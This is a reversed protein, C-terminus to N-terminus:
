SRTSAIGGHAHAHARTCLVRAHSRAHLATRRRAQVRAQVADTLMRGHGCRALSSFPGCNMPKTSNHFHWGRVVAVVYQLPTAHRVDLWCLHVPPPGEHIHDHASANMALAGMSIQDGLRRVGSVDGASSCRCARGSCPCPMSCRCWTLVLVRPWRKREATCPLYVPSSDSIRTISRHGLAGARRRVESVHSQGDLPTAPIHAPRRQRQGQQGQIEHLGRAVSYSASTGLVNSSRIRWFAFTTGLGIPLSPAYTLRKSLVFPM